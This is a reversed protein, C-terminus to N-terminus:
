PCKTGKNPTPLIISVTVKACLKSLAHLLFIYLFVSMLLMGVCFNRDVNIRIFIYISILMKVLRDGLFGVAGGFGGFGTTAPIAAAATALLGLLVNGGPATRRGPRPSASAM